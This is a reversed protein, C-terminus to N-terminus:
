GGFLRKWISRRVSPRPVHSAQEIRQTNLMIREFGRRARSIRAIFRAAEQYKWAVIDFNYQGQLKLDQSVIEIAMLYAYKIAEVEDEELYALPIDITNGLYLVYQLKKDKVLSELAKLTFSDQLIKDVNVTQPMPVYAVEEEYSM